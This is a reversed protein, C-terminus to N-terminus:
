ENYGKGNCSYCENDGRGDCQLCKKYGLGRCGSCRKGKNTGRGQCRSCDDRKGSGHCFGCDTEGTADCSTCAMAGFPIEVKDSEFSMLWACGCLSLGVVCVLVIVKKM